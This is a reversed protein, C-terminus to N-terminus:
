TITTLIPDGNSDLIPDCDSDLLKAIVRFPPNGGPVYVTQYTDDGCRVVPAAPAECTRKLRVPACAGREPTAPTDDITGCVCDKSADCCSTPIEADTVVITVFFEPGTGIIADGFSDYKVWYLRAEYTGAPPIKDLVGNNNNFSTAAHFENPAVYGSVDMVKCRLRYWSPMPEDTAIKPLNNSSFTYHSLSVM